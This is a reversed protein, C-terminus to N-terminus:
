NKRSKLVLLTRKALKVVKINHMKFVFKNEGETEAPKQCATDEDKTDMKDYHPQRRRKVIDYGCCGSFYRIISMIDLEIHM